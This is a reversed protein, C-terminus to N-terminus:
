GTAGTVSISSHARTTDQPSSGAWRPSWGGTTRCSGLRRCAVRWDAEAQSTRLRQECEAVLQRLKPSPTGCQEALRLLELAAAPDDLQDDDRGDDTSHGTVLGQTAGAKDVAGARAHEAGDAGRSSVDRLLLEAQEILRPQIQALLLRCARHETRPSELLCRAAHVPDNRVLVDRAVACEVPELLRQWM